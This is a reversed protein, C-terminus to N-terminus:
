ETDGGAGSLSPLSGGQLLWLQFLSGAFNSLSRHSLSIDTVSGPGAECPSGSGRVRVRAECHAWLQRPGAKGLACSLWAGWGDALVLKAM